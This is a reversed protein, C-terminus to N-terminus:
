EDKAEKRNLVVCTEIHKTFPFMDYCKLSTIEYEEKLLKLDRVLTIPNCSIYIIKEIKNEKLCTIVSKKLGSRPPDVIVKKSNIPIKKLIEEVKGVHFQVNKLQNIRRNEEASLIAKVNSEIGIVKEVDKALRLGFFGVGCYLDFVTDEKEFHMKIDSLIKERIYPNVQFFAEYPIKYTMNEKTETLYDVGYVCKHNLIIGKIKHSTVFDEQIKLKEKTEILVLCEEEENSRITLTGNQFSFKQFDKLINAISSNVLHCEKICLFQHSKEEYYGFKGNEVKLSIKNRYGLVPRSPVIEFEKFFIHNQRFLDKIIEKKYRLSEQYPLFDFTCGGCKSAYLCYSPMRKESKEIIKKVKGIDKTKEEKITEIEVKEKPLTRPIFVVKGNKHALGRGEYDLKEIELIM